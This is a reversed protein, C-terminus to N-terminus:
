DPELVHGQFYELSERMYNMADLKEVQVEAHSLKCFMCKSPKGDRGARGIEQSYSEVSSPINFHVVKRINAKDIGMGFAITAVIIMDESEMFKDQIDSKEGKPLGAHFANANFGKERLFEALRITDKQVTVYIISPGENEHLFKILKPYMKQKTQASQALLKLNPRYTPTRFLGSKEIDFSQCISKAVSDTATATLCLVCQARIEQM